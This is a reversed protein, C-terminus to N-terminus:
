LVNPNFRNNLSQVGHMTENRNIPEHSANGLSKIGGATLLLLKIGGVSM